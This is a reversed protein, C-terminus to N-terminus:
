STGLKMVMIFVPDFKSELDTVNFNVAFRHNFQNYAGGMDCAYMSMSRRPSSFM